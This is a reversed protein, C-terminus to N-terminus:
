GKPIHWGGGEREMQTCCRDLRCNRWSQSWVMKPTQTEMGGVGEVWLWAFERSYCQVHFVLMNISQFLEEKRKRNENQWYMQKENCVTDKRKKKGRHCLFCSDNVQSVSSSHQEVRDLKSSCLEKIKDVMWKSNLTWKKFFIGETENVTKTEKESDKRERRRM